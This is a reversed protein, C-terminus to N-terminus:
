QAALHGPARNLFLTIALRHVLAKPAVRLRSFRQGFQDPQVGHRQAFGAGGGNQEFCQSLLVGAQAHQERVASGGPTILAPRQQHWAVHLDPLRPVRTPHCVTKKIM